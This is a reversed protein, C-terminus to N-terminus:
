TASAGKPLIGLKTGYLSGEDRINTQGNNAVVKQDYNMLKCYKSSIWGNTSSNYRVYYWTVGRDDKRSDELYTLRADKDVTGLSRYELGAGARVNVNGSTQVYASEAVALGAFLSMFISLVVMLLTTRALTKKM